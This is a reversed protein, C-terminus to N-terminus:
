HPEPGTVTEVDLEEALDIVFVHNHVIATVNELTRHIAVGDAEPNSTVYANKITLLSADPAFLASIDRIWTKDKQIAPNSVEFRAEVPHFAIKIRVTDYNRTLTTDPCHRARNRGGSGPDPARRPL